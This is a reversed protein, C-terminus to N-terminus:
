QKPLYCLIVSKIYCCCCRDVAKCHFAVAAAMWVFVRPDLDNTECEKHVPSQEPYQGDDDVKIVTAHRPTAHQGRRHANILMYM